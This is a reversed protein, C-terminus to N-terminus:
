FYIEDVFYIVLLKVFCAAQNAHKCALVNPSGSCFTIMAHWAIHNCSMCVYDQVFFLCVYIIFLFSFDCLPQILHARCCNIEIKNSSTWNREVHTWCTHFTGKTNVLRSQCSKENDHDIWSYLLWTKDHTMSTWKQTRISLHSRVYSLIIKHAKSICVM